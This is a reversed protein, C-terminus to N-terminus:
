DLFWVCQDAPLFWEVPRGVPPPGTALWARVRTRGRALTVSWGSGVPEASVVPWGGMRVGPSGPCSSGPSASLVDVSRIGLTLSPAPGAGLVASVDAPVPVTVSGCESVFQRESLGGDGAVRVATGDILSLRGFCAAALRTKPHSALEEATGLEQVKGAGLVGVRRGLALVDAPDHTVFVITAGTRDLLLHLDHRFEARFMPDLGSFPEDLLWVPRNQALLKALGVRQREGGSLQHPFRALLPALRLLDVVESPDSGAPKGAFLNGAVTLHPYLPVRQPLLSVGREHPPVRAVDRGGIRVTGADPADLGAIVRLLTTKGSGSPGVLALRDGPDLHLYIDALGVAGTPFSKSVAMLTVGLM